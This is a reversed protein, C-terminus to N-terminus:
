KYSWLAGKHLAKGIHTNLFESTPVDEEESEDIEHVIDWVDTEKHYVIRKSSRAIGLSVFCEFWNELPRYGALEKLQEITTIQTM